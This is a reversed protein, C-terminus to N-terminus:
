QPILVCTRTVGLYTGSAVILGGKNVSRAESLVWGSPLAPTVAPDNLNRMVRSTSDWVYAAYNGSADIMCGVVLLPQGVLPTNVARAQSQVAGGAGDHLDNVGDALGYSAGAGPPVWLCAHSAGNGCAILGASNIVPSGSQGSSFLVGPIPNMGKPLGYM